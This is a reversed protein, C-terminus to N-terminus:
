VIRETDEEFFLITGLSFNMAKLFFCFFCYNFTNEVM